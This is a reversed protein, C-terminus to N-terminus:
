FDLDDATESPAAGDNADRRDLFTVDYAKLKLEARPEGDKTEYRDLVVRGEVYVLRGKAGYENVFEAQKEWTEVAFWDTTQNEGRGSNVALSFRSVAKGTGTYRMTPDGGMRGILITKSKNM